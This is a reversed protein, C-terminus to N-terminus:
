AAIVWRITTQWCWNVGATVEYLADRDWELKSIGAEVSDANPQEDLAACSIALRNATTQLPLGKCRKRRNDPSNHCNYDDCETVRPIHSQEQKTSLPLSPCTLLPVRSSGIVLQCVTLCLDCGSLLLQLSEQIKFHWRLTANSTSVVGTTTGRASIAKRNRYRVLNHRVAPLSCTVWTM